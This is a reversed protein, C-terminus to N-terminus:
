KARLCHSVLRRPARPGALLRDWCQNKPGSPRWSADLLAGYAGPLRWKASWAEELAGFLSGLARWSAELAWKAAMNADNQM